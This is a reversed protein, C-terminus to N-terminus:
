VRGGLPWSVLSSTRSSAAPDAVCFLEKTDDWFVLLSVTPRMQSALYERPLLECKEEAQCDIEANLPSETPQQQYQRLLAAFEVCSREYQGPSIDLLFLLKVRWGEEARYMYSLNGSFVRDPRITGNVQKVVRTVSKQPGLTKDYIKQLGVKFFKYHDKAAEGLMTGFYKDLFWIVAATPILWDLFAQPQPVRYRFTCSVGAKQLDAIASGLEDEVDPSIGEILFMGEPENPM